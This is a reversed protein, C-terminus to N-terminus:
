LRLRAEIRLLLDRLPTWAIAFGAAVGLTDAVVDWPDTARSATLAGQVLEIAIGLAVLGIAARWLARRPRFIQVASAALAFWALFHEIKDAGPPVPPLDRAPLLCAVTVVVVALWWLSLWLRPRRLPKLAPADSM